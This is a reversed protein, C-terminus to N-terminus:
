RVVKINFMPVRLAGWLRLWLPERASWPQLIDATRNRRRFRVPSGMRVM